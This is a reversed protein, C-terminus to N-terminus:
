TSRASLWRLGIPLVNILAVLESARHLPISVDFAVFGSGVLVAGYNLIGALHGIGDPWDRRTGPESRRRWGLALALLSIAAAVPLAVSLVGLLALSTLGSLVFVADAVVDLVAGRASGVGLGRALRGDVFDTVSAAVALGFAARASWPLAIVFLPGLVMRLGTLLDPLAARIRWGGGIEAGGGPSGASGCPAM